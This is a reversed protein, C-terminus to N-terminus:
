NVQHRQLNAVSSLQNEPLLLLGTSYEVTDLNRDIYQGIKELTLQWPKKVVLGLLVIGIFFALALIIHSTLFYCLLAPGLAYLFLELVQKLQWKKKFEKLIKKGSSM